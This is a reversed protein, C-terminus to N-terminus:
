TKPLRFLSSAHASVTTFVVSTADVAVSNVIDGHYLVQVAGGEVPVRALGHERAAIYLFSGDVALQTEGPLNTAYFSELTTDGDFHAVETPLAGPDTVSSRLVSLWSPSGSGLSFEFIRDGNVVFPSFNNTDRPIEVSSSDSNECFISSATSSTVVALCERGGGVSLGPLYQRDLSSPLPNPAVTGDPGFRYIANGDACYVAGGDSALNTVMGIADSQFVPPARDASESLVRLEPVANDVSGFTVIDSNWIAASHFYTWTTTGIQDINGTESVRLGRIFTTPPSEVTSDVAYIAGDEIGLVALRTGTALLLPGNMARGGCGSLAVALIGM